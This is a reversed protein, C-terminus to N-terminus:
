AHHQGRRARLVLVFAIVALLPLLWGGLLTSAVTNNDYRMGPSDVGRETAAAVGSANYVVITYAVAVLWGLAVAIASRWLIKKPWSLSIFQWYLLALSGVGVLVFIQEASV